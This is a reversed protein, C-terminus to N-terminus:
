RHPTESGIRTIRPDGEVAWRPRGDTEADARMSRFKLITFVRGHLGIREQRYLISGASEFKIMCATVVLLPLTLVLLIM